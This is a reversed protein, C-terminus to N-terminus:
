RVAGRTILSAGDGAGELLTARLRQQATNKDDAGAGCFLVFDGVLSELLSRIDEPPRTPEFDASSPESPHALSFHNAGDILALFCDGRDSTLADDFTREVRATASPPEEGYRAASGFIVGDRTGGLILTPVQSPLPLVTAAPWGFATAAATHGGYSFAGCVGPFWDARANLLAVTGGASHGGVIIKASDVMELKALEALVPALATASVKSGFTDPKLAGFDIGPSLSVTGANESLTTYTVAVVGRAALAKALWGYADPEVNYGPLVVVAPLRGDTSASPDYVVKLTARDYPATEGPLAVARFLTKTTAM